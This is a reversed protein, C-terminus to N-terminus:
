LCILTKSFYIEGAEFGATPLIIAEIAIAEIASPM